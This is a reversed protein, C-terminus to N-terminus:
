QTIVEVDPMPLTNNAWQRRSIRSHNSKSLVRLNELRNDRRNGNIHDVEEKRELRRGLHVEMLYRHIMIRRGDPATMQKYYVKRNGTKANEFRCKRSCFTKGREAVSRPMTFLEHCQPCEREVRVYTRKRRNKIGNLFKEGSACYAGRCKDSCTKRKSILSPWDEILNGCVACPKTVKPM